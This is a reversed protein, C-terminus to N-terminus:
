EHEEIYETEEVSELRNLLCRLLGISEYVSGIRYFTVAEEEDIWVAVLNRVKVAGMINAAVEVTTVEEEVTEGFNPAAKAM